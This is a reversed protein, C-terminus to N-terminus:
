SFFYIINLIFEPFDILNYIYIIKRKKLNQIQSM